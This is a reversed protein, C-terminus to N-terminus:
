MSSSRRRHRDVYPTTSCATGGITGGAGGRAKFLFVHRMAKLPLWAPGLPTPTHYSLIIYKDINGFNEYAGILWSNIWKYYYPALKSFHKDIVKLIIKENIQSSITPKANM